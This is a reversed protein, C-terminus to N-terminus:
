EITVILRASLLSVLGKCIGTAKGAKGSYMTRVGKERDVRIAAFEETNVALIVYAINRRNDVSLLVPGERSDVVTTARLWNVKRIGKISGNDDVKLLVSGSTKFDMEAIGGEKFVVGLYDPPNIFTATDEETINRYSLSSDLEEMSPKHSIPADDVIRARVHRREDETIMGMAVAVNKTHVTTANILNTKIAAEQGCTASARIKSGDDSYFHEQPFQMKLVGKSSLYIKTRSDNLIKEYGYDIEIDQLLSDVAKTNQEIINATNDLLPQKLREQLSKGIEQVLLGFETQEQISTDIASQLRTDRVIQPIRPVRNKIGILSFKSHYESM